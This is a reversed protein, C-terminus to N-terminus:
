VAKRTREDSRGSETDLAGLNNVPRGTLYTVLGETYDTSGISPKWRPTNILEPLEAMPVETFAYSYKLYYTQIIALIKTTDSVRILKKYLSRYIATFVMAKVYLNLLHEISFDPM